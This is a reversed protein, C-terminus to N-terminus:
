GSGKRLSPQGEPRGKGPKSGGALSPVRLRPASDSKASPRRLLATMKKKAVLVKVVSGIGIDKDGDGDGGAAAAAAAEAAQVEESLVLKPRPLEPPLPVGEGILENRRELYSEEARFAEEEARRLSIATLSVRTKLPKVESAVAALSAKSARNLVAYKDYARAAGKEAM